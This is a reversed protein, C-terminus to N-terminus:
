IYLDPGGLLGVAPAPPAEFVLVDTITRGPELTAAPTHESPPDDVPFLVQNYYNHHHDRLLPQQSRAWSRYEFPATGVDTVRVTLVLHEQRRERSRLMKVPGVQPDLLM